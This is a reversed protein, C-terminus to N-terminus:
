FGFFDSAADIADGLADVDAEDNYVYLSARATASVGLERMLVKACHHGARVCVGHEDFVQTLDHPHLDRYTFSLVGGREAPESPGHIVLDGGFRETLSRLAYGTLSVEHARVAEMGLGSLYDVAAGLGVAEAIPPTGAEFKWPLENATFGEKTVNLIMEGGTLFPPTADLIEETGWLVGIGTPGCMKHGTFAAFDAGWAGVDTPMHPVYQSADVVAIAGAAHAADVLRRVPNLTGLVNSMAAFSVVRAGDVLRDLDTLDLHGDAGVPVWRLEIGLESALQHWPVINAHHELETIVVPDGARLNARGWAKAVLNLAETANKAFVVERPAAAGIFSAVKARAGELAATAEEAILYTGRHVNANSQEYFRDVADLVARPKQSTNASDLYVLRRGRVLRELIPFDKKVREVDLPDTTPTAPATV